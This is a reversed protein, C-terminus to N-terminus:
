KGVSRVKCYPINDPILLTNCLSSRDIRLPSSVISLMHAGLSVADSWTLCISVVELWSLPVRLKGM